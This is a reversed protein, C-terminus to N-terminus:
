FELPIIAFEKLQCRPLLISISFPPLAIDCSSRAVWNEGHMRNSKNAAVNPLLSNM